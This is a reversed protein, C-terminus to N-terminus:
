KVYGTPDTLVGKIASIAATAPSVLYVEPGGSDAASGAKRAATSLCREGPALIDQYNGPCPGCGPNMVLAGAEVFARILGKKLAELYIGRSGPYIMMRIDPHIRKGKIIDAAIRLDDLRGNACSGLIIQNLPLGELSVVDVVKDAKDPLAVQPKIQNINFEFTAEYLADKDALAPRYPMKTRGLFYRRTTSDFPCIATVAGLDMSLHSLTFRESISMQSVISGYFEIATGEVRSATLNRVIFLIVDRAYVGRPVKGNIAISITQPVTMSLRGSSWLAAMEAMGITAAFAGISGYSTTHIDTGVALQGPLIDGNEVVLQHCVGEGVDYFHKINQRKVFERIEKHAVATESSAASSAQDLSIVIRNPNWVYSLGSERFQRLVLSATNHALALDPEVTVTEGIEVKEQGAREAIIKQAITRGGYNFKKGVGRSPGGLNLELQELKLFAPKDKLNYKRRWNYFAAKSIGLELGCRYDDGFREWVEQIEAQSFKPFSNRAINKKRRWYAVLQASVGGLREAIKEDTKYLRQLQILEAKTPIKGRPM